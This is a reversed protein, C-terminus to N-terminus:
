LTIVLTVILKLNLSYFIQSILSSYVLLILIPIQHIVWKIHFLSKIYVCSAGVRKNIFYQINLKISNM